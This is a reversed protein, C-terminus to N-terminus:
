AYLRAPRLYPVVGPVFLAVFMSLGDFWSHQRTAAVVGTLVGVVSAILMAGLTLEITAPFRKALLVTVRESNQISRGLDGQLVRGLYKVFQVPLPDNLQLEARVKEVAAPTAHEGLAILVPDGPTLHSIAFVVLLVGFFVPLIEILRRGVYWGM